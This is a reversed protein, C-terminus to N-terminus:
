CTYKQIYFLISLYFKCKGENAVINAKDETGELPMYGSVSSVTRTTEKLKDCNQESDNSDEPFLLRMDISDSAKDDENQGLSNEMTNRCEAQLMDNVTVNDTFKEKNKRTKTLTLNLEDVLPEKIKKKRKEENLSIDISKIKKTNENLNKLISNYNETIKEDESTTLYEEDDIAVTCQLPDLSQSPNTVSIDENVNVEEVADNVPVASINFSKQPSQKEEKIQVLLPDERSFKSTDFITIEKENELEEDCESELLPMKKNKKKISLNDSSKEKENDSLEVSESLARVKKKKKSSINLLSTNGHDVTKSNERLKEQEDDSKLTSSDLRQRKSKKTKPKDDSSQSENLGHRANYMERSAKKQEKIKRENYKKKSKSSMKLENDSMSLNDGSGSLLENDEEASSVVFSDKEYDSDESFDEDTELTEGKEIIENNMEYERDEDNQSDGSEYDDSAEEAEEAIMSNQKRSTVVESEEESTSGGSDDKSKEILSRKQNDKNSDSVVHSDSNTIHNDNLSIHTDIQEKSVNKPSILSTDLQIGLKTFLKQQLPTSTLYNQSLNTKNTDRKVPSDSVNTSKSLQENNNVNSIQASANIDNSSSDKVQSLILTSKNENNTNELNQSELYTGSYKRKSKNGNNFSRRKEEVSIMSKSMSLPKNSESIEITNNEHLNNISVNEPLTEDVDMQEYSINNKLIDGDHVQHVIPVCQDQVESKRHKSIIDTNSDSDEDIFVLTQVHIGPANNFLEATPNSDEVDKSKSSIDKESSTYMDAKKPSKLTSTNCKASKSSDLDKYGIMSEDTFSKEKLKNISKNKENNKTFVGNDGSSANNLTKTKDNRKKKSIENDSYFNDYNSHDVTISTWSKTRNRKSSLTTSSDLATCSKNKLSRAKQPIESLDMLLNECSNNKVNEKDKTTTNLENNSKTPLETFSSETLQLTEKAVKPNENHNDSQDHGKIDNDNTDIGSKGLKNVKEKKGVLRPSKRTVSNEENNSEIEENIATSINPTKTITTSDVAFYFLYYPM